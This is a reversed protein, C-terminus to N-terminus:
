RAPTAAAFLLVLRVTGASPHRPLVRSTDRGESRAQEFRLRADPGAHLIPLATPWTDTCWWTPGCLSESALCLKEERPPLDGRVENPCKQLQRKKYQANREDVNNDVAHYHEVM